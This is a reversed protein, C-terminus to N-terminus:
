ELTVGQRVLLVPCPCHRLVKDAVSGATWRTVGGRGHTSMVVIDVERNTAAEIIAEAPASDAVLAEVDFGRQRLAHEQEQLYLRAELSLNMMLRARLQLADAHTVYYLSAASEAARLIIIKASYKEALSLALPLATESLESGDLPVLIRKLEIMPMM